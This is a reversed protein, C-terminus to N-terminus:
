LLHPITFGECGEKTILHPPKYFLVIVKRDKSALLSRDLLKEVLEKSILKNVFATSRDIQLGHM